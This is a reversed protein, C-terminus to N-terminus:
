RLRLCQVQLALGAQRVAGGCGNLQAFPLEPRNMEVPRQITEQKAADFDSPGVIVSSWM